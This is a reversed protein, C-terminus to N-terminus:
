PEGPVWFAKSSTQGPGVAGATTGSHPPERPGRTGLAKPDTERPSDPPRGHIQDYIVDLNLTEKLSDDEQPSM